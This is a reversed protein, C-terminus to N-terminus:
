NNSPAHDAKGRFSLEVSSADYGPPLVARLRAILESPVDIDHVEGTVEDHFHAHEHLNPCYRTPAREFNVQRVLGCQVLSELCNYVTALSITPMQAKVRAFLEDASPHNRKDLILRYVLERQPTPRLGADTLRKILDSTALPTSM